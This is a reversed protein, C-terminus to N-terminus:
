NDDEVMTYKSFEEYISQGDRSVQHKLKEATKQLIENFNSDSDDEQLDDQRNVNIM